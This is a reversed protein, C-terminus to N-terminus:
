TREKERKRKGKEKISSKKEKLNIAAIVFLAESQHISPSKSALFDLFQLKHEFIRNEVQLPGEKM